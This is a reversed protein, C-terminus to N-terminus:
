IEFIKSIKNKALLYYLIVSLFIVYKHLEYNKLFFLITVAFTSFLITFLGIKFFYSGLSYFFSVLTLFKLYVLFPVCLIVVSLTMIIKSDTFLYFYNLLFVFLFFFFYFKIFKQFYFKQIFELRSNLDKLNNCYMLHRFQKKLFFKYDLFLDSVFFTLFIAFIFGASKPNEINFILIIFFIFFPINEVFINLFFKRLFFVLRLDDFIKFNTFLFMKKFRHGYFFLYSFFKIIELVLLSISIYILIQEFFQNKFFYMFSLISVFIFYLLINTYYFNKTKKRIICNEIFFNIFFIILILFYTSILQNIEVSSPFNEYFVNALSFLFISLISFGFISIILIAPSFFYVINKFMTEKIFVNNIYFDEILIKKLIFFPLHLYFFISLYKTQYLLLSIFLFEVYLYYKFLIYKNPM